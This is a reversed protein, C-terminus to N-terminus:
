APTQGVLDEFAKVREEGLALRVKKEAEEVRPGMLGRARAERLCGYAPVARGVKVFCESLDVMVDIVTPDLALVRRLPAIAEGYREQVILMRALVRFTEAAAVGEHAYQVALRLAEESEDTRGLRGFAEGLTALARCLEGRVRSDLSAGEPTRHYLTLPAVWPSLRAIVEEPRGAALANRAVEVQELDISVARGNGSQLADIVRGRLFRRLQKLAVVEEIGDHFVSVRPEVGGGYVFLKRLALGFLPALLVYRPGIYARLAAEDPTEPLATLAPEPEGLLAALVETRLTLPEGSREPGDGGGPEERVWTLETLQETTRDVTATQVRFGAALALAMLPEGLVSCLRELAPVSAVVRDFWGDSRVAELDYETADSM